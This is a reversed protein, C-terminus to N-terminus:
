PEHARMGARGRAYLERVQAADLREHFLAMEDHLGDFYRDGQTSFLPGGMHLAHNAANSPRLGGLDAVDELQGNRYIAIRDGATDLVAVLHTWEDVAVCSRTDTRALANCDSLTPGVYTAFRLQSASIAAAWGTCIPINNPGNGAGGIWRSGRFGDTGMTQPRVWLSLTFDEPTDYAESDVTSALAETRDFRMAEGVLGATGTTAGSGISGDFSGAQDLVEGAGLDADDYTWYVAPAPLTAGGTAADRPACSDAEAEALAGGNCQAEVLGAIDQAALPLQWYAVEDIAGAFGAGVTLPNAGFALVVDDIDTTAVEAGDQYLRVVEGDFTAAAHVWEDLPLASPAPTVVEGDEGGGNTTVSLEGSALVGLTVGLQPGPGRGLSIVTADSTSSGALRVWAAMTFLTRADGVVGDIRSAAEGDFAFAGRELIGTAPAAALSVTGDVTPLTADVAAGADFSWAVTPIPGTYTATAGVTACVPPGIAGADVGRDIGLDRPGGQDVRPGVDRGPAGGGDVVPAGMDLAESTSGCAALTLALLPTLTPRRYRM